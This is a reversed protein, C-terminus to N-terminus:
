LPLPETESALILGSHELDIRVQDIIDDPVHWRHLVSNHLNRALTGHTAIYDGLTGGNM